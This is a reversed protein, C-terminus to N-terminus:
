HVFFCLTSSCNIDPWQSVALTDLLTFAITYLIADWWCANRRHGCSNAQWVSHKKYNRIFLDCCNQIKAQFIPRVIFTRIFAIGSISAAIELMLYFDNRFQENWKFLNYQLWSLPLLPGGYFLICAKAEEFNFNRQVSRQLRYSKSAQPMWNPALLSNLRRM